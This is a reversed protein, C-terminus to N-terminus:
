LKILLEEDNKSTFAIIMEKLEPEKKIQEANRGIERCLKNKIKQTVEDCNELAFCIAAITKVEIPQDNLEQTFKKEIVNWLTEDEYQINSFSQCIIVFDQLKM